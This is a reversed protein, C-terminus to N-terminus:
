RDDTRGRARGDTYDTQPRESDTAPTPSDSPTYVPRSSVGAVIGSRFTMPFTFSHVPDSTM